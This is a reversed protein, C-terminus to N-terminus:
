VDLLNGSTHVYAMQRNNSLPKNELTNLLMQNDITAEPSEDESYNPLNILVPENQTGRAMMTSYTDIEGNEPSLMSGMSGVSCM